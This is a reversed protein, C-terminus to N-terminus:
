IRKHPTKRLTAAYTQTIGKRSPILLGTEWCDRASGIIAAGPCLPVEM